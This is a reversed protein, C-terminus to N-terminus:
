GYKREFADRPHDIYDHAAEVARAHGVVIREVHQRRAFWYLWGPKRAILDSWVLFESKGVPRIEVFDRSSRYLGLGYANEALSAEASLVLPQIQARSIFGLEEIGAEDFAKYARIRDGQANEAGAGTM